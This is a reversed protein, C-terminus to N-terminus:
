SGSLPKNGIDTMSQNAPSPTNKDRDGWMGTCSTINRAGAPGHGESGPCLDCALQGEREQFTGPPCSVCKEQEGHYYSGPLCRVSLTASVPTLPHCQLRLHSRLLFILLVPISLLAGLSTTNASVITYGTRM